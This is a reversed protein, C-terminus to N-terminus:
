DKDHQHKHMMDRAKTIVREGYEAMETLTHLREEIRRQIASIKIKIAITVGIIIATLILMVSMYVIGMVYFTDQLSM